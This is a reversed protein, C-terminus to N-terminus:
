PQRTPGYTVPLTPYTITVDRRMPGFSVITTTSNAELRRLEITPAITVTVPTPTAIGGPDPTPVLKITWAFWSISYKPLTQGWTWNDGAGSTFLTNNQRSRNGPTKVWGSDTLYSVTYGAPWTVDFEVQDFASEGTQVAVQLTIINDANQVIRFNTKPQDVYDRVKNLLRNLHEYHKVAVGLRQHINVLRLYVVRLLKYLTAYDECPSCCKCGNILKLTGEVIAGLRPNADPPLVDEGFTIDREWRFCSDSSLKLNGFEDPKVGNISTILRENIGAQCSPFRGEGGRADVNIVLRHEVDEVGIGIPALQSDPNTELNVNFGGRLSVIGAPDAIFEGTAPAQLDVAASSSGWPILYFRLEATGDLALWGQAEVKARNLGAWLEADFGASEVNTTTHAANITEGAYSATATYTTTVSANRLTRTYPFAHSLNGTTQKLVIADDPITYTVSGVTLLGQYDYVEMEVFGLHGAVAELGM